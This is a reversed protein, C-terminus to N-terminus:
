KKLLNDYKIEYYIRELVKSKFILALIKNRHTVYRPYKVIITNFNKDKLNFEIILHIPDANDATILVKFNDNHYHTRCKWPDPWGKEDRIMIEPIIMEWFRGDQMITVTTPGEDYFAFIDLKEKDKPNITIDLQGNSTWYIRKGLSLIYGKCNKVGSRGINEIAIRKARYIWRPNKIPMPSLMDIDADKCVIIPRMYSDWFFKIPISYLLGGMAAIEPRLGNFYIITAYIGFSIVAGSVLTERYAVLFDLIKLDLGSYILLLIELM